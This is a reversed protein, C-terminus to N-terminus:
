KITFYPTCELHIEFTRPWPYSSDVTLDYTQLTLDGFPSTITVPTRYSRTAKYTAVHKKLASQQLASAYRHNHELDLDATNVYGAKKIAGNVVDIDCKLYFYDELIRNHLLRLNATEIAISEERSASVSQAATYIAAEAIATGIANSTTNWGAYALLSNLPYDRELLLPLVCESASFHKSLDVLAVRSSPVPLPASDASPSSTTTGDAAAHKRTPESDANPSQAGTATATIAVLYDAVTARSELGGADSDNTSVVLTYDADAPSLAERCGTLALKEHVTTATDIAMYPMVRSPTQEDNYKVYVRPATHARETVIAALQTLALEDAGHTLTVRAGLNQAAIFNALNNKEINPISYPEGDDQGLVLGALTGDAALAILERNLSENARFHALYKEMSAPPIAAELRAIENEDVALGAARRGVLRSYALLDKREQYGDISDQPTQRPLISFAYIPVTPSAQHIERLCALMAAVTTDDTDKERAALLGGYLLQDISVIIASSGPAATRLWAQMAATDGPASYYDMIDSPPTVVDIGAVRGADVVMQRCPPRSDLPVLVVRSTLARETTAVQGVVPERLFIHYASMLAAIIITIALVARLATTIKSSNPLLHAEKIPQNALM